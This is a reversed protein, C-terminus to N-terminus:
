LDYDEPLALPSLEELAKSIYESIRMFTDAKKIDRCRESETKANLSSKRALNALRILICEETYLTAYQRRLLDDVDRDYAIRNAKKRIKELHQINM